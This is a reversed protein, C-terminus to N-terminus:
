PTNAAARSAPVTRPTSCGARRTAASRRYIKQEQAAYPIRAFVNEELLGMKRCWSFFTRVERHRHNQYGPAAGRRRLDGLFAYVHEVAYDEVAEPLGSRRGVRRFDELSQAYSAITRPTKREVEIATLYTAITDDIRAQGSGTSTAM